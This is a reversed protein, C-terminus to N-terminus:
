ELPLTYAMEELPERDRSGHCKARLMIPWLRTKLNARSVIEEMVREDSVLSETQPKAMSAETGQTAATPTEGRSDAAFALSLQNKQQKAGM